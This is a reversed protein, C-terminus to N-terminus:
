ATQDHVLVHLVYLMLYGAGNVTARTTCLTFLDLGTKSLLLTRSLGVSSILM